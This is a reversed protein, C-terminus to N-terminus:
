GLVNGKTEDAVRSMWQHVKAADPHGGSRSQAITGRLILYLAQLVFIEFKSM